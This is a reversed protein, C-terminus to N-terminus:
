VSDSSGSRKSSVTVSTLAMDDNNEWGSYLVDDATRPKPRSSMIQATPETSSKTTSRGTSLVKQIWPSDSVMKRLSPLCLILFGGTMEAICWMGM